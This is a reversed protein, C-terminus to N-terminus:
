GRKVSDHPSVHRGLARDYIKRLHRAAWGPGVTTELKDFDFPREYKFSVMSTRPWNSYTLRFYKKLRDMIQKQARFRKRRRRSYNKNRFMNFDMLVLTTVGPIFSPGFTKMVHLFQSRQKAADDIYVEIPQRDWEIKELTTKHARIRSYIPLVNELFVQETDQGPQLVVGQAESKECESENSRFRDYCHIWVSSRSEQLGLAIHACSSGLWSGVEVVHGKGQHNLGLRYLYEGIKRGGM